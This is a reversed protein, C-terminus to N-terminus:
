SARLSELVCRLQLVPAARHLMPPLTHGLRTLVRLMAASRGSPDDPLPAAHNQKSMKRGSADMVLPVHHYKAPRHGLTRAIQLQPATEQRLDDGRVVETIAMASEDVACALAYGPIDDQRWIIPDGLQARTAHQPGQLQDNWHLDADDLILRWAPTRAPTHPHRWCHQDYASPTEQLRARREARTCDCPYLAGARALVERAHRYREVHQTQYVPHGDWHLGYAELQQLICATAGPPCRAADLDDIRVWWQGNQRRASIWSAAATQLSGEHLPGSPTPAFRGKTRM